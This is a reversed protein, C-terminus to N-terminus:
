IILGNREYNLQVVFRKLALGIFSSLWRYGWGGKQEGGKIKDGGRRRGRSCISIILIVVTFHRVTPRKWEIRFSPSRSYYVSSEHALFEPDEYLRGRRLCESRINDFRSKGRHHRSHSDAERVTPRSSVGANHFKELSVGNHYQHPLAYPPDNSQSTTNNQQLISTNAYGPGSSIDMNTVGRSMRTNGALYAM